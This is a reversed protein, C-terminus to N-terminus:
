DALDGVAETVGAGRLYADLSPRIITQPVHASVERDTDGVNLRQFLLDFQTEWVRSIRDLADASLGWLDSKFPGIANKRTTYYFQEDTVGPKREAAFNKDLYAYMSRRLEDPLNQFLINQFNTALHVECAGAETFRSFAEEPLTSAGHQVAGAMQYAQRAIRSLERLTDFDVSVQAISGDPLVVGGHSTGTQISIKSLGPRGPGLAGLARNFGDMFGRLEPETSNRGGVEGIEGGISITIGKPEARRVDLALEACLNYNLQQQEAITPRSLDVLTSTDIDINFFGGQVAERILDGVAAVEKLPAEAFRKASVQFHDGQLFVPGSWGEAVAAAVISSTYESPRQHTYGMESRAIEFIIASAHRRQAARFVARAAHYSLARLNMAPVTFDNRADGRGRARYLGDISAPYVGVQAAAERIVWRALGAEPEAALAARHALPDISATLRARDRVTLTRGSLSLAGATGDVLRRLHDQWGM